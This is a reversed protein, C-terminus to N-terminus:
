PLYPMPGSDEVFKKLAAMVAPRAFLECFLDIERRLEEHPVPKIFKKAAARTVADFKTIQAATSRAIRLAEGEGALQTVLGVAQARAANVTRGTFLLDRVFANGLDRKLRPIGGFGPILGLRLEPFAFRAMKDAIIIDCALALELGGGFCVGHVAAITVFPAADLANLVAHIRELFNRLDALREKEPLPAAGRYLERLDAGASFVSKRASSIICVSTEPALVSSAAVFQELESLMASGIENAPAHDLTLEIVGERWEWRLTKGAFSKM